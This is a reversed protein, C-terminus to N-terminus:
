PFEAQARARRVAPLPLIAEMLEHTYPHRPRTFVEDVRGEEVVKADKTVMVRSCFGRVLKLDHTIFVLSLGMEAKLRRLLDLIQGQLELDLASVPEDAVLLRPKTAIARAIAIRQRQGGSFEHPHRGAMGPELGVQALLRAAAERSEQPAPKSHVQLDETVIDGVTM